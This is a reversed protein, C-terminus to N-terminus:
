GNTRWWERMCTEGDDLVMKLEDSRKKVGMIVRALLLTDFNMSDAGPTGQFPGELFHILPLLSITFVGQIYLSTYTHLKSPPLLLTGICCKVAANRTRLPETVRAIPWWPGCAAKPGLM